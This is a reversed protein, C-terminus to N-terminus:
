DCVSNIDTGDNDHPSKNRLNIGYPKTLQSSAAHSHLLFDVVPRADLSRAIRVCHEDLVENLRVRAVKGADPVTHTSTREM